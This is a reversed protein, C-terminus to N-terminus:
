PVVLPRSQLRGLSAATLCLHKCDPDQRQRDQAVAEARARAGSPEGDDSTRTQEVGLLADFWYDKCM